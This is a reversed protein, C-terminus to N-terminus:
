ENVWTGPKWDAPIQPRKAIGDHIIKLVREREAGNLIFRPARVWEKGLGAEEPPEESSANRARTFSKRSFASM